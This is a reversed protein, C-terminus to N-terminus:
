DAEDLDDFLHAPLPFSSAPVESPLVTAVGCGACTDEWPLAERRCTPCVRRDLDVRLGSAGPLADDEDQEKKPDLFGM